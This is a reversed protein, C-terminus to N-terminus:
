ADFADDRQDGTGAASLSVSFFASPLMSLQTRNTELYKRLTRSHSSAYIPGGIIIADCLSTVLHGHMFEVHQATADHGLCQVVEVMSHAIKECQGDHTDYIILIKSM